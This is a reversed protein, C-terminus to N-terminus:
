SLHLEPNYIEPTREFSKPEGDDLFPNRSFM